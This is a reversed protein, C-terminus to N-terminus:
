KDTQKYTLRDRWEYYYDRVKSGGLGLKKGAKKFLSEDIPEGQEHLRKVAQYALIGKERRQRHAWLKAGKPLCSGFAEDFTKVKYHTVMRYRGLYAHLVWEPMVLERLACQAVADLVAFGDGADYAEKLNAIQKLAAWQAFPGAPDNDNGGSAVYAEQAALAQEVSWDKM